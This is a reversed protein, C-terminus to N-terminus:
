AYDRKDHTNAIIVHRNGGLKRVKMRKAKRWKGGGERRGKKRM